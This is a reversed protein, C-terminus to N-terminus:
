VQLRTRGFTRRNCAAMMILFDFTRSMQERALPCAQGRMGIVPLGLALDMVASGSACGLRVGCTQEMCQCSWEICAENGCRATRSRQGRWVYEVAMCNRALGYVAVDFLAMRMRVRASARARALSM